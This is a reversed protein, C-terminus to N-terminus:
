KFIKYEIFEMSWVKVHELTTSRCLFGTCFWEFAGKGKVFCLRLLGTTKQELFVGSNALHLVKSNSLM